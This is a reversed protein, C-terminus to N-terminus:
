APAASPPATWASNVQTVYPSAQLQAVIDTGARRAATSLAGADSTVTILMQVDGQAFKGSLLRAAQSSESMPDQFGGAALSRTVPIGFVATAVMVLLAVAIIRRPAAIALRAIVQLLSTLGGGGGWRRSPAPKEPALETTFM